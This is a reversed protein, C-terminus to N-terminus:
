PEQHLILCLESSLSVISIRIKPNCNFHYKHGEMKGKQQQFRQLDIFTIVLSGELILVAQSIVPNLHFHIAQQYSRRRLM